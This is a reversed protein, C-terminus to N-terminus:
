PPTSGSGISVGGSSHVLFKTSANVQVRFPVQSSASNIHVKLIQHQLVLAGYAVTPLGEVSVTTVKLYLLFTLRQELLEMPPFHM